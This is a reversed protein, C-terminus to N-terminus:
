PQKKIPTLLISRHRNQSFEMGLIQGSDNILKISNSFSAYDRLDIIRGGCYFFPRSPYRNPLGHSGVVCGEENIDDLTNNYQGTDVDASLSIFVQTMALSSSTSIFAISQPVDDGLANYGPPLYSCNVIFFNNNNTIKPVRCAGRSFFSARDVLETSSAGIRTPVRIQDPLWGSIDVDAGWIWIVPKAGCYGGILKNNTITLALSSFGLCSLRHSVGTTSGESDPLWAFSGRFSGAPYNGVAWGSDNIATPAGADWASPSALLPPAELSATSYVPGTLTDVPYFIAPHYVGGSFTTGVALGYNNIYIRAFAPSVRSNAIQTIAGTRTDFIAGIGGIGSDGPVTSFSGAILGNNNFSHAEFGDPLRVVEYSQAFISPVTLSAALALIASSLKLKKRYM